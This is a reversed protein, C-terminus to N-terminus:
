SRAQAQTALLTDDNRALRMVAHDFRQLTRLTEALEANAPSDSELAARLEEFLATADDTQLEERGDDVGRVAARVHEQLCADLNGLTTTAQAPLIGEYRNVGRALVRAYHACANLAIIRRRLAERGTSFPSWFLGPKARLAFQQAHDELNRAAELAGGRADSRTLEAISAHIAAGAAALTDRAHTRLVDGTRTPFIMVAALAGFIAGVATEALRIGLLENSFRGLEAYLLALLTTIFFIMMGYSVRLLYIGCFLCLFMAIVSLHTHHQAFRGVVVGVMVGFTTGAVRAWARVITEGSSATGTFVFFSALVAWYWRQPSLAEGVVIAAASALTIQVAQRLAPQQHGPGFGWPADSHALTEVVTDVHRLARALAGIAEALTHAAGSVNTDHALAAALASARKTQERSMALLALRLARPAPEGNEQLGRAAAAIEEAALEVDFVRRMGAGDYPSLRGEISVAIEHLRAIAKALASQASPAGHTKLLDHAAAMTLRVRAQFATVTREALNRPRDPFLGFRVLFSCAVGCFVALLLVPLMDITANLFLTFFYTAVAVTGLATWRPGYARIATSIFLVALFMLDSALPRSALLSGLAAGIAGPVITLVTTTRAKPDNVALSVQMATLSGLLAFAPPLHLVQTLAHLILTASMVALTVRLALTFRHLGPDSAVVRDWLDGFAHSTKM